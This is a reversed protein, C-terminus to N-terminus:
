SQESSSRPLLDDQGTLLTDVFCWCLHASM